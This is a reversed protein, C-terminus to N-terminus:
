EKENVLLKRQPQTLVAQPPELIETDPILEVPLPQLAKNYTNTTSLPPAGGDLSPRFLIVLSMILIFVAMAGGALFGPSIKRGQVDPQAVSKAYANKIALPTSYPAPQMQAVACRDHNSLSGASGNSALVIGLGKLADILERLHMCAYGSEMSEKVCSDWVDPSDPNLFQQRRYEVARALHNAEDACLFYEFGREEFYLGLKAAETQLAELQISFYNANMLHHVKHGWDMTAINIAQDLSM